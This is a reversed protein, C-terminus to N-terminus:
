FWNKPVPGVKFTIVQELQTNVLRGGKRGAAFTWEAVAAVAAAEFGVDTSEVAIPNKVKGEADVIFQVKVSGETGTERMHTPYVPPQRAIVRPMRDLRNPDPTESVKAAGTASKGAALRASVASARQLAATDDALQELKADIDMASTGATFTPKPAAMPVATQRMIATEQRLEALQRMFGANATEQIVVAVTGTAAIIGFLGVQLKNISMFTMFAGATGGAALTSLAAGSVIAGLGAPAAGVGHQALGLALAGTTSNVGCRGLRARLKDLAREVRMRATNENVRLQAGVEAFGRGEFFRLLIAERDGENLESLVQDLVPRLRTWDFEDATSTIIENMKVAALERAQRRREGRVLKAAAYRASVFLWAVLVRHSTLASAKRALDTFVLQTVDKALHVDGNVQRLAASYVFNLHREVLARFATEDAPNAVYRRLLVLDENM